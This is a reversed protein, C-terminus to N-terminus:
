LVVYVVSATTGNGTSYVKKVALELLQNAAVAITSTTGDISDVKVNGATSGILIARACYGGTQEAPDTLDVDSTLTLPITAVATPVWETSRHFKIAM